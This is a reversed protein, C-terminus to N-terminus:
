NNKMKAEYPYLISDYIEQTIKLITTWIKNVGIKIGNVLPFINSLIMYPM